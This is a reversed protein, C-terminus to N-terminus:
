LLHRRHRAARQSPAPLFVRRVMDQVAHLRGRCPRRLRGEDGCPFGPHRCLGPHPLPRARPDPRRRRRVVDQHDRHLTHEHPGGACAPEVSPHHAFDGLGLLASRDEAGPIQKRFEPSFEGHVTSTHVGAKEFVKGHLMSMVGGGGDPREWSKRNFRCGHDIQELAACIQDRLSEFWNRALVKREDLDDM